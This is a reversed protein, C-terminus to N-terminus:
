IINERVLETVLGIVRRKIETSTPKSTDELEQAQKRQMNRLAMLGGAELQIDSLVNPLLTTALVFDICKYTQIDAMFETWGYNVDEPSYKEIYQSFTDWYHQLCKEMNLDRFELDTSLYLLYLVDYAPHGYSILQFDVLVLDEVQGTESYKFMINNSWFDGHCCTDVPSTVQGMFKDLQQRATVRFFKRVRESYETKGELELIKAVTKETGNLLQKYVFKPVRKQTNLAQKLVDPSWAGQPLKGREGLWRFALWRGHFHALNRMALLFHDLPLIEMKNFMKYGRKTVNEM